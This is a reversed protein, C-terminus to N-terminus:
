WMFSRGVLSYSLMAVFLSLGRFVVESVESIVVVVGISTSSGTASYPFGQDFISSSPVKMSIM